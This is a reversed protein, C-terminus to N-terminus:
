AVRVSVIEFSFMLEHSLLSFTISPSIEDSLTLICAVEDLRPIMDRLCSILNDVKATMTM